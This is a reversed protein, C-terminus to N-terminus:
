GLFTTCGLCYSHFRVAIWNFCYKLAITQKRKAKCQEGLNSSCVRHSWSPCTSHFWIRSLWTWRNSHSQFFTDQLQFNMYVKTTNRSNQNKGYWMGHCHEHRFCRAGIDVCVCVRNAAFWGFLLLNGYIHSTRRDFRSDAFAIFHFWMSFTANQELSVFAVVNTLYYQFTDYLGAQRERMFLPERKPFLTLASYMPTFTNESLLIFLAGQVSQIGYQDLKTTGYFCLGTM